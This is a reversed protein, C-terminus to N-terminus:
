GNPPSLGLLRHAVPELVLWPHGSTPRAGAADWTALEVLIRLAHVQRHWDLRAGDVHLHDPALRRYTAHFRRAITRGAARLAAAAPGPLAIPPNNLMLDTFGLTFGPDAVRAVTWDILVPGAETILVNFPHLDGHAIVSAGAAPEHTLLSEAVDVLDRRGAADAQFAQVAVFGATTTPIDGTLEALAGAVPTADLQHLAAAMSALQDPLHRLLTPVQRVVTAAGLGGLPPHGDVLDMVILFRGLPGTEPAVLRVAPTPFGQAAVGRQITAEWAGAIASPVIRAVVDGDLSPPPDALRFRVMEAYFGGTLVAPEGDYRLDRCGTEAQLTALLQESTREDM